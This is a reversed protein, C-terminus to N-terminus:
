VFNKETFSVLNYYGIQYMIDSPEGYTNPPIVWGPRKWYEELYRQLCTLLDELKNITRFENLPNIIGDFDSGICICQWPNTTSGSKYAVEAIHILNEWFCEAWRMNQEADKRFINKFWKTFRKGKVNYGLIRQDIELGIIGNSAYIEAIDEEDLNIEFDYYKKTAGHSYIIPLDPHREKRYKYFELRALKSMHKVDILVPAGNGSRLLEEIVLYGIVTIERDCLPPQDKYPKTLTQMGLEQGLIFNKLDFLSESHSCLGNYFHHALTIFFPRAPHAKIFRIRDEVGAWQMADSPDNGNCLVQAGECSNAVLLVGQGIESSLDKGTTLLKYESNGNIPKKLQLRAAFDMQKLLDTYYNFSPDKVTAIWAKGFETIMNAVTDGAISDLLDSKLDLFGQEIPYFSNVILKLNGENCSTFDSQRYPAFGAANELLADAPTDEDKMWPSANSCADMENNNAYYSHGYPKLFPHVHLDAKPLKM